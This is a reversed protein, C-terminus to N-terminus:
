SPATYKHNKFYDSFYIKDIIFLKDLHVEARRVFDTYDKQVFDASKYLLNKASFFMLKDNFFKKYVRSFVISEDNENFISTGLYLNKWAAIGFLDCITPMIDATTIFKDIKKPGGLADILKKDYMLFPIRYLETDYRSAIRDRQAWGSLDNYYTEHDAVIIITTSELIGNGELYDMMLELSYDFDMAAAAYTRWQNEKTSGRPFLGGGSYADMKDYYEKLNGREKEYFGHMAFTTWYTFFRFDPDDSTPFMLEKMTKITLSDLNREGRDPGLTMSTQKYTNTMGYSEMEEIGYFRDFGIQPFINGRNYARASNQHFGAIQTTQGSNHSRFLNPLSFPYRNKPFDYNIYNKTPYNGLVSILEASDTKEKQRYNAGYIGDNILRTLAPFLYTTEPSDFGYRELIHTDLSEALIIILNNDPCLGFYDTEDFVSDYIFDDVMGLNKTDVGQAAALKVTEYLINATAGYMQNADGQMSYLLYRYDKQRSENLGSIVPTICFIVTFIVSASLSLFRFLKPNEPTCATDKRKKDLILNVVVAAIFIALAVACIVILGTSVALQEMAGFADFRQNLMEKQFATGNAIYLFNSAIILAIQGIIFALAIFSKAYQNRWFFLFGAGATVVLMPMWFHAIFVKAGMFPLAVIELVLALFIYLIIIWNEEFYERATV